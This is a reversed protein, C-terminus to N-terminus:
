WVMPARLVMATESWSVLFWQPKRFRGWFGFWKRNPKTQNPKTQNPKTQNPKTQNPKATKRNKACELRAPGKTWPRGMDIDGPCEFTLRKLNKWNEHLKPPLDRLEKKDHDFVPLTASHLALDNGRHRLVIEEALYAERQVLENAEAVLKKKRELYRLQEKMERESTQFKAMLNVISLLSKHNASQIKTELYEWMDNDSYAFIATLAKLLVFLVFSTAALLACVLFLCFIVMLSWLSVGILSEELSELDM